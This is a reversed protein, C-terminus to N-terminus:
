ETIDTAVRAPSQSPRTVDASGGNGVDHRQQLAFGIVSFLPSPSDM